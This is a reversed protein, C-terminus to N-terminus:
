LLSPFYPLYLLYRIFVLSESHRFLGRNVRVPPKGDSASSLIFRGKHTSFMFM